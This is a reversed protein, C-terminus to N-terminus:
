FLSQQYRHPSNSSPLGCSSSDGQDKKGKGDTRGTDAWGSENVTAASDVAAQYDGRCNTCYGRAYHMVWGEPLSEAPNRTWAGMPKGCSKCQDGIKPREIHDHYTPVPVGAIEALQQATWVDGTCLVGAQIVGTAPRTFNRDLSDGAHLADKACKTLIPCARCARKAAEAQPSGIRPNTFQRPKRHCPVVWVPHPSKRPKFRSTM